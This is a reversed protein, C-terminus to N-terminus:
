VFLQYDLGLNEQYYKAIEIDTTEFLKTFFSKYDLRVITHRFRLHNQQLLM